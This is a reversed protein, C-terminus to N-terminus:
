KSRKKLEEEIDLMSIGKAKLLILFHYILDAAENKFLKDNNDKAEIILEDATLSGVKIVSIAACNPLWHTTTAM